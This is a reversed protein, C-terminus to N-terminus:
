SRRASCRRRDEPRAPLRYRARHGLAAGRRVPRTAAAAWALGRREAPTLTTALETGARAAPTVRRSPARRRARHHVRGAGHDPVHVRGHLLLQGVRQRPLRSRHPAGSGGVARGAVPGGHGPPPQRQLRGVRRRVGRRPRRAPQARGGPVIIAALPILLVYGVEGGMNSMVGAFVVALTLARPPASLVVLKLGASILGTGEAVAIGLMAVLVTGLPAFSTFNTVLETMIRHLGALTLLSVPRRDAGDRSAGCEARGGIRHGLRSGGPRGDRCLPHGPAPACQRRARRALPVPDAPQPARRRDHRM